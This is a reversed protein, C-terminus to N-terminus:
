VPPQDNPDPDKPLQENKIRELFKILESMPAYSLDGVHDVAIFGYGHILADQVAADYCQTWAIINDDLDVAPKDSM